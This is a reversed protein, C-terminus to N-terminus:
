LSLKGGLLQWVQTAGPTAIWAERLEAGMADLVDITRLNRRGPDSAVTANGLLQHSTPPPDPIQVQSRPDLRLGELLGTLIPRPDGGRQSVFDLVSFPIGLRSCVRLCNVHVDRWMVAAASASSEEESLGENRATAVWSAMSAIPHRVLITASLQWRPQLLPACMALFNPDKSSDVVAGLESRRLCEDFLEPVGMGTLQGVGDLDYEPCARGQAECAYCWSEPLPPGAFAERFQPLRNLEGVALRPHLYNLANSLATSGVFPSGLLFHARPAAHDIPGPSGGLRTSGGFLGPVDVGLVNALFLAGPADALSEAEDALPPRHRRSANVIRSRQGSASLWALAEGVLDRWRNAAQWMPPRDPFRDDMWGRMAEIPDDLYLWVEDPRQTEVERAMFTLGEVGQSVQVIDGATVWPDELWSHYRDVPYLAGVALIKM